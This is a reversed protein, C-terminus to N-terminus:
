AGRGKLFSSHLRSPTNPSPSGPRCNTLVEILDSPNPRRTLSQERTSHHRGGLRGTVLKQADDEAGERLEASPLRSGSGKTHLWCSRRAKPAGPVPWTGGKGPTAVVHISTATSLWVSAISEELFAKQKRGTQVTRALTSEQDPHFECSM